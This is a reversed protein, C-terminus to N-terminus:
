NFLPDLNISKKEFSEKHQTYFDNLKETTVSFTIGYKIREDREVYLTDEYPEAPDYLKQHSQHRPVLINKTESATTTVIGALLMKEKKASYIYFPAGSFGRNFNADLMINEPKNKDPKSALAKTVMKYGSPYGPIYVTEGSRITEARITELRYPIPAQDPNETELIAIDLTKDFT